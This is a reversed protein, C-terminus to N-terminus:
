PAAPKLHLARLWDGKLESYAELGRPTRLLTGLNKETERALTRLRADREAPTLTSDNRLAAAQETATDRLSTIKGATALPLVDQAVM